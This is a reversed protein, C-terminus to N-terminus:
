TKKNGNLWVPTIMLTLWWLMGLQRGATPGICVRLSPRHGLSTIYELKLLALPTDQWLIGNKWGSRVLDSMKPVDAVEVECDIGVDKLYTQVATVLDMKVRVDTTIKSKFGSPYGADALLQKAKTKDFVRGKFDASYYPANPQAFQYAAAMYGEGIGKAITDRDIAYEVAQRVALKSFPSDANAGDPVFYWVFTLESPEIIYGETKLKNADVPYLAGTYQAEKAKFSLQRTM